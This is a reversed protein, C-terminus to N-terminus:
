KVTLTGEMGAEAHGPVTCLFTYTGPQLEASVSTEGETITESVALEKGDQEIAVDHELPAPNSFDITVQGAKASLETTDFAIASPDAALKLTSGGGAAGAEKKGEVEKKEEAAEGAQGAGETASLPEEGGSPGEEGTALSQEEAEVEKDAAALEQARAEQEDQGNLV